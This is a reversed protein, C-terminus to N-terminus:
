AFHGLNSVAALIGILIGVLAAMLGVLLALAKIECDQRSQKTRQSRSLGAGEAHTIESSEIQDLTPDGNCAIFVRVSQGPNLRGADLLVENTFIAPELEAPQVECEDIPFKTKIAFKTNEAAKTGTSEISITIPARSLSRLFQAPVKYDALQSIEYRIESTKRTSFHRWVGFAVGAVAACTSVVTVILQVL